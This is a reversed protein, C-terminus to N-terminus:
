DSAGRRARHARDAEGLLWESRAYAALAPADRAAPSAAATVQEFAAFTEADISQARPVASGGPSPARRRTFARPGIDFLRRVECILQRAGRASRLRHAAHRHPPQSIEKPVDAFGTRWHGRLFKVLLPGGRQLAPQRRHSTARNRRTGIDIELADGEVVVIHIYTWARRARRCRPDIEIAIVRAAGEDVVRPHSRQALGLRSTLGSAAAPLAHLAVTLNLDLLTNAWRASAGLDHRAIVERPPSFSTEPLSRAARGPKAGHDAMVLAAILSEPSATGTGAIDFATGHDPSTRVFPLGLTVNVGRDFDLTKLPILAQDHYMCIAADYKTRARKHFMTDAALPGTVAIGDRELQEIAPHIIEIEERGLHGEEGAHPNLGAIALRPRVVGFDTQLAAATV